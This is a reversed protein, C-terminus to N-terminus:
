IVTTYWLVAAGWAYLGAALVLAQLWGPSKPRLKLLLWHIVPLAPFAVLNILLARGWSRDGEFLSGYPVGAIAAVVPEVAAGLLAGPLGLLLVGGITLVAAVIASYLVPRM